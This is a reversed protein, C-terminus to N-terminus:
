SRQDKRATPLSHSLTVNQLQNLPMTPYFGQGYYNESNLDKNYKRLKYEKQRSIRLKKLLDYINKQYAQFFLDYNHYNGEASVSNNRFVEM